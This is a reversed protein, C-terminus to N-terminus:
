STLCVTGWLTFHDQIPIIFRLEYPLGHGQIVYPDYIITNGHSSILVPM